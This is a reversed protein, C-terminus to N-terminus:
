RPAGVGVGAGGRITRGFSSAAPLPRSPRRRPPSFLFLLNERLASRYDDPSLSSLHLQSATSAVLM